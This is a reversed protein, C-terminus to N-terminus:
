TRRRPAPRTASRAPCLCCDLGFARRGCCRQRRWRRPLSEKRTRFEAAMCSNRTKASRFTRHCPTWTRPFFWIRHRARGAAMCTGARDRARATRAAAGGSDEGGGMRAPCSFGGLFDGVAGEHYTTSEIECLQRTLGIPDLPLLESPDNMISGSYRLPWSMRMM